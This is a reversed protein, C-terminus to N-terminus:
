GKLESANEQLIKGSVLLMATHADHGCAHQVGDNASVVIKERKLNRKNELIPLADIDARLLVTKEANKNGIFGLIGGDEVEEYYINFRQLKDKIYELTKYEVGSLEPNQHIHRRIEILLEQNEKALENIEM